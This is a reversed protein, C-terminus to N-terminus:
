RDFIDAGWFNRLSRRMRNRSTHLPLQRIKNIKVDLLALVGTWFDPHYFDPGISLFHGNAANSDSFAYPYRAFHKGTKGFYAAEISTSSTLSYVHSIADHAMLHYFNIEVLETNPFLRTLTTNIPNDRVYPHPKVLVKEHNDSMESFEEMFEDAKMIHGNRILVKDDNSQCAFLAINEGDACSPITALRSLSALALGAAIHIEEDFIVWSELAKALGFVNSRVGFVLDDLFRAPHITFDLYPIDLSDFAKRVLEPLEFAIVFSETFCEYLIALERPSPDKHFLSLWSNFNPELSNVKFIKNGLCDANQEFYIPSVKLNTTLELSPKILNYLWRININQSSGGKINTRLFDGTIFIRNVPEM